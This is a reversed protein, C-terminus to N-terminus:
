TPVSRRAAPSVGYHKKFARSFHSRSSFGVRHAVAEMPLDDGRELLRLAHELRIRRVLSMPPKGFARAFAEAFVSRSMSATSALSEVTHPAGPDQLIKDLARALREDELAALWPLSCSGEECLRRLLFVICQSMLAAKMAESGPGADSQEALIAKFASRAQPIDSLNEILVDELKDFLGLAAGYRVRVWGCAVIMAPQELSGASIVPTDPLVEGGPDISCEEDTEGEPELSHAVGKPVVALSCERLSQAEGKASRVFGSGTLVFHLMVRASGALRLRRNRSVECLSFPEVHIDLNSLLKDLQM